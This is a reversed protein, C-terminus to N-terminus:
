WVCETTPRFGKAESGDFCFCSVVSEGDYIVCVMLVENGWTDPNKLHELLAAPPYNFAAAWVPSAYFKTGGAADMNIQEFQQHRETDHTTLWANIEAMKRTSVGQVIVEDIYSM